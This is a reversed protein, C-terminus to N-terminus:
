VQFHSTQFVITEKLSSRNESSTRSGCNPFFFPAKGSFSSSFFVHFFHHFVLSKWIDMKWPPQKQASKWPPHLVRLDELFGGSGTPILGQLDWRCGIGGPPPLRCSANFTVMTSFGIFTHRRNLLFLFTWFLLLLYDCCYFGLQGNLFPWKYPGWFEM